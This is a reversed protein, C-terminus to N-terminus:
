SPLPDVRDALERWWDLRSPRGDYDRRRNAGSTNPLVFAQTEAVAWEVMGLRVRRGVVASAATKGNFAIWAPRCQQVRSLFGPVDYELGRDHDQAVTKNLDTLGIGFMPLTADEDPRLLKPTLGSEHLLRWFDNGPRSYYHGRTDSLTGAATGVLVLRLGPALIDPLVM